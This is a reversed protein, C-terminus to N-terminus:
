VAEPLSRLLDAVTRHLTPHMWGPAIEGLPQLVFTRRHMEPHPLTLAETQLVVGDYLLLDLDLTRPGKLVANTRDRGHQREILLLGHLLAEPSLGTQVLAAGNLFRPQDTYGVPETDFFGSVAVVEGLSQLAEVASYLTAELEGLNAGLAIAALAM